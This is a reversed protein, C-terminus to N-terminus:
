PNVWGQHLRELASSASLPRMHVVATPASHGDLARQQIVLLRCSLTPSLIFSVFLRGLQSVLRHLNTSALTSIFLFPQSAHHFMPKLSVVRAFIKQYLLAKLILCLIMSLTPHTSFYVNNVSPKSFSQMLTIYPRVRLRSKSMDVHLFFSFLFHYSPKIM